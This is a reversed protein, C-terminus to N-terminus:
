VQKLWLVRDSIIQEMRVQSCLLSGLAESAGVVAKLVAFTGARDNNAQAFAFSCWGFFVVSLPSVNIRLM